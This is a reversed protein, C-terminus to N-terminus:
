LPPHPDEDDRKPNSILTKTGSLTIIVLIGVLQTKHDRKPYLGARLRRYLILLLAEKLIKM